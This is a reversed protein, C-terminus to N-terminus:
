SKNKQTLSYFTKFLCLLEVGLLFVTYEFLHQSNSINTATPTVQQLYQFSWVCVCVCKYLYLHIYLYINM